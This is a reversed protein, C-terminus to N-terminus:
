PLIRKGEDLKASQALWGHMSFAAFCREKEAGAELCKYQDLHEPQGNGEVRSDPVQFGVFKVVGM